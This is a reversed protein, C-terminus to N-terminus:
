VDELMPFKKGGPFHILIEYEHNELDQPRIKGKLDWLMDASVTGWVIVRGKRKTYLEIMEPDDRHLRVFVGFLERKLESM